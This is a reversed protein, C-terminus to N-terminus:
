CPLRWSKRCRILISASPKTQTLIPKSDWEWVDVPAGQKKLTLAEGEIHVAIDVEGRELLSLM